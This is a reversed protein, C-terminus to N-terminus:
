TPISDIVKIALYDVLQEGAKVPLKAFISNPLASVACHATGFVIEAPTELSNAHRLSEVTIQFAEVLKPITFNTTDKLTSLFYLQPALISDGGLKYTCELFKSLVKSKDESTLNSIGTRIAVLAKALEPSLGPIQDAIDRRAVSAKASDRGGIVRLLKVLAGIQEYSLKRISNALAEVDEDRKAQAIGDTVENVTQLPDMGNGVEDGVSKVAGALRLKDSELINDSEDTRATVPGDIHAGKLVDNGLANAVDGKNLLADGASSLDGQNPIAVARTAPILLLLLAVTTLHM